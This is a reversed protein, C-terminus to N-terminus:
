SEPSAEQLLVDTGLNHQVAFLTVTTPFRGTGDYVVSLREKMETVRSPALIPGAFQSLPNSSALTDFLAEWMARASAPTTTRDTPPNQGEPDFDAFPQRINAWRQRAENWTFHVVSAIHGERAKYDQASDDNLSRNTIFRKLIVRGKEVALPTVGNNLQSIQENTTPYDAADLPAPIFPLTTGNVNAGPHAIEQARVVACVNAAIQGPLLPCDELQIGHAYVSNMPAAPPVTIAEASTGVLGYFLRMDKGNIPLAQSTIETQLEGLGNDTASPATTATKATVVYYADDLSGLEAIADTHDDETTGASVTEKTITQTNTGVMEVTLENLAHTGRTGKHPFTCTVEYDDGAAATDSVATLMLQGGDYGNIAAALGDSTTEEEDGSAVAYEIVEGMYKVRIVSVADSNNAITLVVSAANGGSEAVPIARIEVDQPVQMFARYMAHLESDPGFLDRSDADSEIPDTVTNATATGASTLNGMLIVKRADATGAGVGAGFVFERAVRPLPNSSSIGTLAM